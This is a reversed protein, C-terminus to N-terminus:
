SDFRTKPAACVMIKSVIRDTYLKYAYLLLLGNQCLRFVTHIKGCKM